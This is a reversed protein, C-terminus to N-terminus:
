LYDLDPKELIAQIYSRIITFDNGIGLAITENKSLMKLQRLAKENIYSPSDGENSPTHLSITQTFLPPSQSYIHVLALTGTINGFQTNYIYQLQQTDMRDYKKWAEKVDSESVGFASKIMSQFFGM